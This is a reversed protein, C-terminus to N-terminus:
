TQERYQCQYQLQMMYFDTKGVKYKYPLVDSFCTRSIKVGKYGVKIYGVLPMCPYALTYRNKKNKSWFMPQPYEKSGGLRPPELLPELM